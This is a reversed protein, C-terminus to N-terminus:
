REWREDTFRDGPDRDTGRDVGRDAGRDVGRDAGREPYPQDVGRETYGGEQRGRDVPQGADQGGVRRGGPYEGGSYERERDLARGREASRGTYGGMAPGREGGAMRGRGTEGSAKVRRLALLTMLISTILGLILGYRAGSSIGPYGLYSGHVRPLSIWRVIILVLAVISATAIATSLPISGLGSMKGRSLLYAAALAAAVLMLVIPVWALAGSQWANLNSRWTQSQGYANYGSYRVGFWPLFSFILGLIGLGIIGLDTGKMGRGQHAALGPSDHAAHGRGAM